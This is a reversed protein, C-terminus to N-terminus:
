AIGTGRAREFAYIEINDIAPRATPVIPRIGRWFFTEKFWSIQVSNAIFRYVRM